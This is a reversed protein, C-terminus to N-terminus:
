NYGTLRMTISAKIEEKNECEDKIKRIIMHRIM